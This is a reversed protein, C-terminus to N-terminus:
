RLFDKKLVSRWPLGEMPMPLMAIRTFIDSAALVWLKVVEMHEWGAMPVAIIIAMIRPM